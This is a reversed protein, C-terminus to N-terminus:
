IGLMQRICAQAVDTITALSVTNIMSGLKEKTKSWVNEDRVSDLYDHGLSTMREIIFDDYGANLQPFVTAEIFGEDLLLNIHGSVRAFEQTYPSNQRRDDSEDSLTDDVFTGVTYRTKQSFDDSELTLLIHRILDLDRKM